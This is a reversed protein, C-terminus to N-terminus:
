LFRCSPANRYDDIFVLELPDLFEVHAPLDHWGHCCPARVSRAQRRARLVLGFSPLGRWDSDDQGVGFGDKTHAHGLNKSGLGVQVDHGLRFAQGLSQLATAVTGVSTM